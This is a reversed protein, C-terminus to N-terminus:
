LLLYSLSIPSTEATSGFAITMQFNIVNNWFVKSSVIDKIVKLRKAALAVLELTSFAYVKAIAL